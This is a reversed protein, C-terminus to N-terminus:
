RGTILGYNEKQHPNACYTCIKRGHDDYRYMGGCNRGLTYLPCYCFLCNFRDPDDTEHCPFYECARNSYFSYGRNRWEKGHEGAM